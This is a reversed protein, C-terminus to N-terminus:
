CYGQDKCTGAEEWKEIADAATNLHGILLFTDTELIGSYNNPTVKIEPRSTSVLEVTKVKNSMASKILMSSVPQNPFTPTTVSQFCLNTAGNSQVCTEIAVKMPSAAQIIEAFAARRTYQAYQPVAIAALIGIIAIVIMLEILTFGEQSVKQNRQM